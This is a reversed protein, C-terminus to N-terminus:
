DDQDGEKSAEYEAMEQRINAIVTLAHREHNALKDNNPLRKRLVAIALLLDWVYKDLVSIQEQYYIEDIHSM